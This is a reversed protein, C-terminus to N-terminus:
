PIFPKGVPLMVQLFYNAPKNYFFWVVLPSGRSHLTTRVPTIICWFVGFSSYLHVSYRLDLPSSCM